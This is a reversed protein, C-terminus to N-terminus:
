ALVAIAISAANFALKVPPLPYRVARTLAGIAAIAMALPPPLLFAAALHAVAGCNTNWGRRIEFQLHEGLMALLLLALAVEVSWAHPWASMLPDGLRTSLAVLERAFLACALVVVLAVYGKLTPRM